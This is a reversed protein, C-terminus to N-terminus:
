GPAGEIFSESISHIRVELRKHVSYHSGMLGEM